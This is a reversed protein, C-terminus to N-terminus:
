EYRLAVMPDLRAARRAPLYSAGFAVTVLLLVIGGFALPDIPSVGYFQSAVSRTLIPALILGAGVGSLTLKASEHLVLGLVDRPQAGLAMRVGIEHTRRTVSYAIVGYLGVIVLFLALAGFLSLLVLSLRKPGMGNAVIEEMDVVRYIPQQPDLAQVQDRVTDTFSSPTTSTRIALAMDRIRGTNQWYPLYIEPRIELLVDPRQRASVVVGVITLPPADASSDGLRGSRSSAHSLSIRHGLPSQNPWFLRAMKENIVAVPLGKRNDDKTLTRGELLGIRLVRFYDPSVVREDANLAGGKEVPRGEIAFDQSDFDWEEMPLLSTVAAGEVGPLTEVRQLLERFFHEVQGPQPYSNEPLPIRMTLIHDGRFGLPLASMERYSRIMLSAGILVVIALAMEAAVLVRRTFNGTRDGAISRGGEKLVESAGCRSAQWAPGLGSLVTMLVTICAGFLVVTPSVGIEAETAIYEHPILAVLAHLGGYMLAFGVLAGLLSLLLNETLVQCLIRGRSAGHVFRLALEPKRVTGRAFLLNALNACIILLVLAVAGMLALLAPKLRGIIIDRVLEPELTWQAYEPAVGEQEREMARALGQVDSKAQDLTVGPKLQGVVYWSRRSRDTDATDLQAPLFIEGGLLRYRYPMVGLVTYSQGSLRITKGVINPDSDFRRHWLSYAMVAVRPGGPRDEESTFVRGLSPPVGKAAFDDVTVRAGFVYEPIGRDSLDLSVPSEASVQEFVHNRRKIELYEPVSFLLSRLNQYPFRAVLVTSRDADKYIFPHLFAGDIVSFLASSAGIGLGLTLVATIAFGPNKRLMRGAFRLDQWLAELWTFTWVQRSREKVSTANGFQRRAAYRAEHTDIGAARNKEERMVLHFALEDDLDRDLQRRRWLARARLWTKNVWEVFV